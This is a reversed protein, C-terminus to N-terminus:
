VFPTGIDKRVFLFNYEPNKWTFLRLRMRYASKLLNSFSVPTTPNIDGLDANERWNTAPARQVLFNGRTKMALTATAKRFTLFSFAEM